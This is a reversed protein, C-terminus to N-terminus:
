RTIVIPEDRVIVTHEAQSILGKKADMLPPYGHIAGRALLERLAIRVKFLSNPVGFEQGEKMLWREAFPLQKHAAYLLIKKADPNRVPVDAEFAFIQIDSGDNVHGAGTSAFPEIAIVQDEELTTPSSYKVNPITPETHVVYQELAHGTLNSVPVFGHGRIVEDIATSIDSIKVGPRVLDLAADLAAEAAKTLKDHHWQVTVGTDAIYGDVHVGCDIKLIDKGDLLTEDNHVPTYHAACENLSLNVPWAPEGGQERIFAEIKEALELLPTGPKAISVGYERTKKTIKGAEIYKQLTGDDM